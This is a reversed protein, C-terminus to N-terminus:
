ENLHEYLFVFMSVNTLSSTSYLFAACVCAFKSASLSVYLRLFIMVNVFNYLVCSIEVYSNKM